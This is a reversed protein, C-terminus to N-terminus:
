QISIFPATMVSTTGDTPTGLDGSALATSEVGNKRYVKTESSDVGYINDGATHKTAAAYHANKGGSAFASALAGVNPSPSVTQCVTVTNDGCLYFIAGPTPLAGAGTAPTGTANTTSTIGYDMFDAYMAEQTTRINRLDSNASANYGRKRYSSFQPIAIAALIAIIAVVILLEILTFGKENKSFNHMAKLM